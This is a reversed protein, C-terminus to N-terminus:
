KIIKERKKSVGLTLGTRNNARTRQGRVPLGREHRIGRYSRIKKMINIEDRLRMDIDSGVLHIDEGTEYDKRHNLMWGPANEIINDITDQLKEIQADKLDGIRMNRDIDTENIIFSAMHVGIGKISSLGYVVKKEGDADTNSLRVIYKFDPGRDKKPKEKKVETKEPKEQKSPKETEEVEAPKEETKEEIEEEEAEPEEATEETIDESEKTEESRADQEQQPEKVPEDKVKEAPTEPAEKKPKSADEM